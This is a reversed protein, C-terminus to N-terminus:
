VKSRAQTSCDIDPSLGSYSPDIFRIPCNRSRFFEIERAIGSSEEWGDITLVVLESCMSMFPRDFETWYDSDLSKGEVQLILDLPHTMTLPSFVRAGRLVIQAALATAMIYRSARVAPDPHTYPAAVYVIGGPAFEMDGLKEAWEIEAQPDSPPSPYLARLVQRLSM